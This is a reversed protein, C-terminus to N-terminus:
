LLAGATELGLSALLDRVRPRTQADVRDLLAETM